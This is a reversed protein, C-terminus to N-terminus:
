RVVGLGTKGRKEDNNERLSLGTCSPKIKMGSMLGATMSM